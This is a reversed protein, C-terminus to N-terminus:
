LTAFEILHKKNGRRDDSRLEGRVHSAGWKTVHLTSVEGLAALMDARLTDTTRFRGPNQPDISQGDLKMRILQLMVCCDGKAVTFAKRGEKTTKTRLAERFAGLVETPRDGALLKSGHSTRRPM